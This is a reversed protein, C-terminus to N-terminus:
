SRISTALNYCITLITDVQDAMAGLFTLSASFVADNTRTALVNAAVVDVLGAEGAAKAAASDDTVLNLLFGPLIVPFRQGPDDARVRESDRALEAVRPLCGASRVRERGRGCNYCLNGLFRCMQVAAEVRGPCGGGEKEESTAAENQAALAREVAEAASLGEGLCVGRGLESRALEALLQAALAHSRLLPRSEEEGERHEGRLVRVCRAALDEALPRTLVRGPNGGGGDMGGGESGTPSRDSSQLGPDEADSAAEEDLAKLLSHIEVLKHNLAIVAAAASSSPPPAGEAAAPPDEQSHEATYAEVVCRDLASVLADWDPSSGPSAM